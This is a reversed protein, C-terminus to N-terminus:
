SQDLSKGTVALGILVVFFFWFGFLYFYLLPIGAVVADRDFLSLIPDNLALVGLLLLAVLRDHRRKM